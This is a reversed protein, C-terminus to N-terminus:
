PVCEGEITYPCRPLPRSCRCWEGSPDVWGKRSFMGCTEECRWENSAQLVGPGFAAVLVLVLLVAVTVKFARSARRSRITRVARYVCFPCEVGLVDAGCNPCRWRPKSM